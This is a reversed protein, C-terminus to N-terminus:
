RGRWDYSLTPASLSEPSSRWHCGVVDPRALSMVSRLAWALVAVNDAVGIVPIVDPILNIPHLNYLLAIRLRRRM